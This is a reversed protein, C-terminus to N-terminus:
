ILTKKIELFDSEIIKVISWRTGKDIKTIEHLQHPQYIFITGEKKPFIKSGESDNQTKWINFDGGEYDDNLHVGINYKRNPFKETLDTHKPFVDGVSYKALFIDDIEKKFKIKTTEEFYKKIKEFVWNTENNNPIIYGQLNIEKNKRRNDKDYIKRYWEVNFGYNRYKESYQIIRICEDKTFYNISYNM